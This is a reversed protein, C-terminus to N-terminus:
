YDMSFHIKKNLCLCLKSFLLKFFLYFFWTPYLLLNFYITYLNLYFIPFLSLNLYPLVSFMSLCFLWFSFLCSFSFVHWLTLLSFYFVLYIFLRFFCSIFAFFLIGGINFSFCLRDRSGWKYIWSSETRSCVPPSSHVYMSLYIHSHTNTDAYNPGVWFRNLSHRAMSTLGLVNWFNWVQIM